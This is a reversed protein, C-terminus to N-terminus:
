HIASVKNALYPISWKLEFEFPILTM